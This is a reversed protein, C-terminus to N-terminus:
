NTREVSVRINSIAQDVLVCAYTPTYWATRPIFGLTFHHMELPPGHAHLHQTLEVPARDRQWWKCTKQPEPDGGGGGLQDVGSHASKPLAM